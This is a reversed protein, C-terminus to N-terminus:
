NGKIVALPKLRAVKSTLGAEELSAVVLNIDKYAQPAEDAIVAFPQNYIIGSMKQEFDELKITKRAQQRSMTRGAGHNISYFTQEVPPLGVMIYSATGMSGPVIAPHGTTLYHAPNQPHGAPLARTAGKRHVLIKKQNKGFSEWKAINHAVDYLLILNAEPCRFVETFVRRIAQTILQRNAFAFNVCGAMASLYAAGSPSDAPLSALNRSPSHLHYRSEEQFFRQSYELCTQHGLARSGTHIMLCIQDKFLGWERALDPQYVEALKQIEIFHNGSGLTGLEKEAREIARLSLHKIQAGELCGSEEISNLDDKTALNKKLLAKVGWIIIEEFDLGALKQRQKHGLGVPVLQEIKNILLHLLEPSFIKADYKLKSTLLRVGCNIDMGVAGASILGETAMVGGIPLGFGEHIDPMGIVPSILKPLSAAEILQSLSRDKQIDPLLEQKAFILVEAKMGPQKEIQWRNLGINKLAIEM